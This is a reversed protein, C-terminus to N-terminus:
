GGFMRWIADKVWLGAYLISAGVWMMITVVIILIVTIALLWLLAEINM